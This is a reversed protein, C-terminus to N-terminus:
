VLSGASVTALWADYDQQAALEPVLRAHLSRKLASSKGSPLSALSEVLGTVIAADSTVASLLGRAFADDAALERGTWSLDSALASGARHTLLWSTGSILATPSDPSGVGLTASPAATRVDCALALALGLGTVRGELHVLVPIELSFLDVVLAHFDGAVDRASLGHADPVAPQHWADGLVNLHVAPPGSKRVKKLESRLAARQEADLRNGEGPDELDLATVTSDSM